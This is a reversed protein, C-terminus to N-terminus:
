KLGSTPLHAIIWGMAAIIVGGGAVIVGWLWRVGTLLGVRNADIIAAETRAAELVGVREELRKLQASFNDFKTELVAMTRLQVSLSSEIRQLHGM